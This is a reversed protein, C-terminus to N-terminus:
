LATALVTMDSQGGQVAGAPRLEGSVATLMAGTLQGPQGRGVDCHLDVYCRTQLARRM